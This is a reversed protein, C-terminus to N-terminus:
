RWRPRRASRSCMARHVGALRLSRLLVPRYVPSLLTRYPDLTGTLEVDLTIPNSRGFSRTVMYGVPVLCVIVVLLWDPVVM